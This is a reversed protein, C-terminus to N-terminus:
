WRRACACDTRVLSGSLIKKTIMMMLHSRRCRATLALCHSLYSQLLLVANLETIAFQDLDKVHPNDSINVRSSDMLEKTTTYGAMGVKVQEYRLAVDM